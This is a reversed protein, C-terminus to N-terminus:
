AHLVCESEYCDHDVTENFGKEILGIMRDRDFNLIGVGGGGPDDHPHFRHIILKRYPVGQKLRKGIEAAARVFNRVNEDSLPEGRTALEITDLGENIWAATEIDQDILNASNILITRDLTNYTNQLVKLPLKDLDPDLYIV